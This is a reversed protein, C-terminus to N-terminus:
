SMGEMVRSCLVVVTHNRGMMTMMMMVM